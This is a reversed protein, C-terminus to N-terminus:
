ESFRIMFSAAFRTKDKNAMVGTIANECSTVTVPRRAATPFVEAAPEETTHSVGKLLPFAEEGGGM